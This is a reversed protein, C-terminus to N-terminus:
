PAELGKLKVGKSMWEILEDILSQSPGLRDTNLGKAQIERAKQLDALAGKQDGFVARTEARQVLLVPDNPRHVIAENLAAMAEVLLRGSYRTKADAIADAMWWRDDGSKFKWLQEYASVELWGSHLKRALRIKVDISYPSLWFCLGVVSLAIVMMGVYKLMVFINSKNIIM